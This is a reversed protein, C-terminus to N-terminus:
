YLNIFAFSAFFYINKEINNAFIMIFIQNGFM